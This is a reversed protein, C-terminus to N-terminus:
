CVYLEPPPASIILYSLEASRTCTNGEDGLLADGTRAVGRIYYTDGHSRLSWLYCFAGRATRRRLLWCARLPRLFLSYPATPDLPPSSLYVPVNDAMHEPM